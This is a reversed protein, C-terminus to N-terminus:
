GTPNKGNIPDSLCVVLEGRQRKDCAMAKPPDSDMFHAGDIAARHTSLEEPFGRRQYLSGSKSLRNDTVVMVEFAGLHFAKM